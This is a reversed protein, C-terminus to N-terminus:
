GFRVGSGKLSVTGDISGDEEFTNVDAGANEESGLMREEAVTVDVLGTQLPSM